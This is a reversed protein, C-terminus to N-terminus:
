MIDEIMITMCCVASLLLDVVGIVGIILLQLPPLIAIRRRRRRM